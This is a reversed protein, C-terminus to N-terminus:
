AFDGKPSFGAEAVIGILWTPFSPIGPPPATRASFCAPSERGRRVERRCMSRPRTDLAMQRGKQPREAPGDGWGRFEAATCTGAQVRTLRKLRPGATCPAGPVEAEAGAGGWSEGAIVAALPRRPMEDRM